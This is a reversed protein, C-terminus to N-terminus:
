ECYDTFEYRFCDCCSCAPDGEETCAVAIRAAYAIGEGQPISNGMLTESADFCVLCIIFMTFLIPYSLPILMWFCVNWTRLGGSYLVEQPVTGTLRNEKLRLIELNPLGAVETPIGGRFFNIGLNLVGAFCFLDANTVDV